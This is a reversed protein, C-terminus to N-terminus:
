KQNRHAPHGECVPPNGASSWRNPSPFIARRSVAGPDKGERRWRSCPHASPYERIRSLVSVKQEWGTWRLDDFANGLKGTIATEAFATHTGGLGGRSLTDPGHTRCSGALEPFFESEQEGNGNTM